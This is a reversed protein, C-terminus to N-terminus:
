QVNTSNLTNLIVQEIDLYGINFIVGNQKWTPVSQIDSCGIDMPEIDCYIFIGQNILYNGYEGFDELQKKCVPCTTSGYIKINQVELFNIFTVLMLEEENCIETEMNCGFAPNTENSCFGLYTQECITGIPFEFTSTNSNEYFFVSYTGLGLIILIGLTLIIKANTKM